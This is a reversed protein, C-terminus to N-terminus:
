ANGPENTKHEAVSHSHARRHLHFGAGIIAAVLCGFLIVVGLAFVFFSFISPEFPEGKSPMFAYFGAGGAVVAVLSFALVCWFPRLRGVVIPESTVHSQETSM